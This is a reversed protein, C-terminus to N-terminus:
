VQTSIWRLGIWRGAACYMSKTIVHIACSKLVLSDKGRAGAAVKGRREGRGRLVHVLVHQADKGVYVVRVEGLEHVETALAMEVRQERVKEHKAVLELEELKGLELAAWGRAAAAYTAWLM